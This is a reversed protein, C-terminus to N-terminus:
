YCLPFKWCTYTKSVALKSKTSDELRQEFASQCNTWCLWEELVLRLSPIQQYLWAFVRVELSFMSQSSSIEHSLVQLPDVFLNQTRGKLGHGNRALFCRMQLRWLLLAQPLSIRSGSGRKHVFVQCPLLLCNELDSSLKLILIGHWFWFIRCKRPKCSKM